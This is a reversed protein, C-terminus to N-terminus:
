FSTVEAMFRLQFFNWGFATITEDFFCFCALMPRGQQPPEHMPPLQLATGSITLIKLHIVSWPVGYHLAVM